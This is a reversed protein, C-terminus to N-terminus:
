LHQPSTSLRVVRRSRATALANKGVMDVVEQRWGLQAAGGAESCGVTGGGRLPRDSLADGLKSTVRVERSRSPRKSVFMTHTFLLGLKPWKESSHSHFDRTPCRCKYFVHRKRTICVHTYNGSLMICLDETGRKSNQAYLKTTSEKFIVHIAPPRKVMKSEAWFKPFITITNLIYIKLYDISTM